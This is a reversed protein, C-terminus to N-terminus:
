TLMFSVDQTLFSQTIILAVTGIAGEVSMDYSIVPDQFSSANLSFTFNPTAVSGVISFLQGDQTSTLFSGSYNVGGLFVAVSPPCNCFGFGNANARTASVAM